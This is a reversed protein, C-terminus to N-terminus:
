EIDIPPIVSQNPYSEYWTNHYVYLEMRILLVGARGFITSVYGDQLLQKGAYPKMSKLRINCITM